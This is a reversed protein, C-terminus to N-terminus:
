RRYGITRLFDHRDVKDKETEVGKSKVGDIVGLIGRGQETKALIVEVPNSTACYISVVEDVQKLRNLVNIPYANNLLVLFVHGMSLRLALQTAIDELQKNNGDHRILALGSSECFAIGFKTAPSSTVLTKYIDEVTKVFHSQGLILNTGEPIELRVVELEL